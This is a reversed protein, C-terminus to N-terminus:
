VPVHCYLVYHTIQILMRIVFDCHRQQIAEEASPCNFMLMCDNVIDQSKTKLITRVSSTRCRRSSIVSITIAIVIATMPLDWISDRMGFGLDGFM